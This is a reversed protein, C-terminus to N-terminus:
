YVAYQKIFRINEKECDNLESEPVEKRWGDYWDCNNFYDVLGQHKRFKYGHRAYISNFMVLLEFNSKGDIEDYSIYRQSLYDFPTGWVCETSQSHAKPEEVVPEEVVQAVATDIGNYGSPSVLTTDAQALSEDSEKPGSKMVWLAALGILALTVLTICVILVNNQKSSPEPSSEPQSLRMGCETCFMSGSAIESQCNPCKM